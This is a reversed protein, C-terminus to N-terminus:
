SQQILKGSGTDTECHGVLTWNTITVSKGDPSLEGTVVVSDTSVPEYYTMKVSSGTVQTDTLTTQNTLCPFATFAGGGSLVYNGGQDPQSSQSLTANLSSVLGNSDRISGTYSGNLAKYSQATVYTWTTACNGGDVKYAAGGMQSGDASLGGYFHFTGGAVSGTLILSAGQNVFGSVQIVEDRKVCAGDVAAHLLGHVDTSPGTLSGSIKPLTAPVPSTSVFEWNGEAFAHSAPQPNDLTPYACGCLGLSIAAVSFTSRAIKSFTNNRM